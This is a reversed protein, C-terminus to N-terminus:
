NGSLRCSLRNGMATASVGATVGVRMIEDVEFRFLHNRLTEWDLWDAEEKAQIEADDM